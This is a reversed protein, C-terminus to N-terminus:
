DRMENEVAKLTPSMCSYVRTVFKLPTERHILIPKSSKGSCCRTFCGIITNM